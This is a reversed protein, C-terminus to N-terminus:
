IIMEGEMIRVAPGSMCVHGDAQITIDLMGKELCVTAHASMKGLRHACVLSACAGSGCALTVGCGREYTCM